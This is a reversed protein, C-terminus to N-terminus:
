ECLRYFRYWFAYAKLNVVQVIVLLGLSSNIRHFSAWRRITLSSEHLTVKLLRVPYVVYYSSSVTHLTTSALVGWFRTLSCPYVLSRWVPNVKPALVLSLQQPTAYWMCLCRFTVLNQGKRSLMPWSRAKWAAQFTLRFWVERDLGVADLRHYKTTRLLFSHIVPNDAGLQSSSWSSPKFISVGLDKERDLESKPLEPVLTLIDHVWWVPQNV